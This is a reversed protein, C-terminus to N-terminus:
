YRLKIKFNIWCSISFHHIFAQFVFIATPNYKNALWQVTKTNSCQTHNDGRQICFSSGWIRCHDDLRLQYNESGTCMKSSAMKDNVAFFVGFLVSYRILAIALFFLTRSPKTLQISIHCKKKKLSWPHYQVLYGAIWNIKKAM